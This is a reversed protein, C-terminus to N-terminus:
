GCRLAEGILTKELVAAFQSGDDLGAVLKALRDLQVTTSSAATYTFDTARFQLLLHKAPLKENASQALDFFHRRLPASLERLLWDSRNTNITIDRLLLRLTDPRALLHCQM